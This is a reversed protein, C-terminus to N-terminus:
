ITWFLTKGIFLNRIQGYLFSSTYNAADNALSIGNPADYPMEDARADIAVGLLNSNHATGSGAGAGLAYGNAAIARQFIKVGNLYGRIYNQGSVNYYMLGVRYWTNPLINTSYDYQSQGYSQGRSNALVVLNAGNLQIAWEPWGINYGGGNNILYQVGPSVTTVNFDLQVSYPATTHLNANDVYAVSQTGTTIMVGNSYTPAVWAAGGSHTTTTKTLSVTGFAVNTGSSLQAPYSANATTTAPTAAQKGLINPVIAGPMITM